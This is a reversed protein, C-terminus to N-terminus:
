LVTRLMAGDHTLFRVGGSRLVVALVDPDDASPADTAADTLSGDSSLAELAADTPWPPGLESLLGSRGCGGLCCSTVFFWSLCPRRMRVERSSLSLIPGRQTEPCDSNDSNM